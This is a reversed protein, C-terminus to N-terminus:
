SRFESRFKLNATERVAVPIVLIMQAVPITPGVQIVRAAQIMPAALSRVM